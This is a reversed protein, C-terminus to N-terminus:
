VIYRVIHPLIECGGSPNLVRLLVSCEHGVKYHVLHPQLIWSQISPSNDHITKVDVLELFELSINDFTQRQSFKELAKVNPFTMAVTCRESDTGMHWQTVVKRLMSNCALNSSLLTSAHHMLAYIGCRDKHLVWNARQCARSCYCTQKCRSCRMFGTKESGSVVVTRPWIPTLSSLPCGEHECTRIKVVSDSVVEWPAIAPGISRDRVFFTTTWEGVVTVVVDRPVSTQDGTTILHTLSPILDRDILDRLADPNEFHRINGPMPTSIAVVHALFISLSCYTTQPQGPTRNNHIIDHMWLLEEIVTKAGGHLRQYVWGLCRQTMEEPTQYYWPIRDGPTPM